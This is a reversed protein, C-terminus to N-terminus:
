ISSITLNKVNPIYEYYGLIKDYATPNVKIKDFEDSTLFQNLLFDFKLIHHNAIVRLFNELEEKRKEIFSNDLNGM